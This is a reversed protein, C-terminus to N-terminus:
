LRGNIKIGSIETYHEKKYKNKNRERVIMLIILIICVAIIGIILWFIFYELGTKKAWEEKVSLNWTRSDTFDGKRIQVKVVHKGIKINEIDYFKSDKKVLIDDLYWEISDYEDNEISFTLNEWSFMSAESNKPYPNLIKIEEGKEENNRQRRTFVDIVQFNVTGKTEIFSDNAYVYFEGTGTWDKEPILTLVSLNRIITIHSDNLKEYRFMLTDNDKDEFCSKVDLYSNDNAAWVLGDCVETLFVPERNRSANTSCAGDYCSYNGPCASLNSFIEGNTGCNYEKISNNICYDTESDSMNQITGRKTLDYGADSDLCGHVSVNFNNSTIKLQFYSLSINMVLDGGLSSSTDIDLGHNISFNPNKFVWFTGPVSAGYNLTLNNDTDDLNTFYNELNIANYHRRSGNLIINPISQNQTINIIKTFNEAFYLFNLTLNPEIRSFKNIINNSTLNIYYFAPGEILNGNINIGNDNAFNMGQNPIKFTLGHEIDAENANGINRVDQCYNKVYDNNLRDQNISNYFNNLTLPTLGKLINLFNETFNGFYIYGESSISSKSQYNKLFIFYTLNNSQIKYMLSNNCNEQNDKDSIINLNNLNENFVSNWASKLSDNSCNSKIIIFNSLDYGESVPSLYVKPFTMLIAIIFILSLILLSNFFLLPEKTKRNIKKRARKKM